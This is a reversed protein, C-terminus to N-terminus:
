LQYNEHIQSNRLKVATQVLSFFQFLSVKLVATKTLLRSKICFINQDMNKSSRQYFRLNKLNDTM